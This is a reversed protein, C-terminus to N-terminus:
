ERLSLFRLRYPSIRYSISDINQDAEFIEGDIQILKGLSTGNVARFTVNDKGTIYKIHPDDAISQGNKARMLLGAPPQSLGTALVIDLTSDDVKADPALYMGGAADSSNLVNALLADKVITKNGDIELEIDPRAYSPFSTFVALSYSNAKLIRKMTKHDLVWKSLHAGFSADAVNIMYRRFDGIEMDILNASVPNTCKGSYHDAIVKLSQAVTAINLGARAFDDGSGGPLISATFSGEPAGERRSWNILANAYDHVTGDGGVLIFDRVGADAASAVLSEMDSTPHRKTMCSHGAPSALSTYEIRPEASAGLFSDKIGRVMDDSFKGAKQNIIAQVPTKAAM